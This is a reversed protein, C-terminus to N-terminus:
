PHLLLAQQQLIEEHVAQPRAPWLLMLCSAKPSDLQMSVGRVHRQLAAGQQAPLCCVEACCDIPMPVCLQLESRSARSSLTTSAPATLGHM